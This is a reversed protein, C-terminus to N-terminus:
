PWPVADSSNCLPFTWASARRRDNKPTPAPTPAPTKPSTFCEYDYTVTPAAYAAKAGKGVKVPVGPVVDTRAECHPQLLQPQATLCSLGEAEVFDLDAVVEFFNDLKTCDGSSTSDCFCVKYRGEPATFELLTTSKTTAASLVAEPQTCPTNLLTLAIKDEASTLGTGPVILKLGEARVGDIDVGSIFLPGVYTGDICLDVKGGTVRPHSPIEFTLPSVSTPKVPALCGCGIELSPADGYHKGVVVVTGATEATVGRAIVEFTVNPPPTILVRDWGPFGAPGSPSIAECIEDCICVEADGANTQNVDFSKKTTIAWPDTINAWPDTSNV